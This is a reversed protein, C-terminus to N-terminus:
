QPQYNKIRDINAQGFRKGFDAVTADLSKADIDALVVCAGEGMLRAAIASGMRGLGAVGIHM